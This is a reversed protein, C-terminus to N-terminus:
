PLVRPRIGELVVGGLHHDVVVAAGRGATGLSWLLVWEMLAGEPLTGPVAGELVVVPMTGGSM